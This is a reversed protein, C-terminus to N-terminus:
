YKRLGVPLNPLEEEVSGHHLSAVRRYQESGKSCDKADPLYEYHGFHVAVGMKPGIPNGAASSLGPKDVRLVKGHCCIPMSESLTIEAPMVLTIEVESGGELCVDTYFYVGRASLDQTFGHEEKEGHAARISVPLSIDFRQAARREVRVPTTTM